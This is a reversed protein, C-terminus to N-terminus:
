PSLINGCLHCYRFDKDNQPDKKTGMLFTINNQFHLFASLKRFQIYLKNLIFIM